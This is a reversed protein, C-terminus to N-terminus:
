AAFEGHLCAAAIRRAAAAHEKDRFEGLNITKYNVVIQARWVGRSVVHHVGRCGSKNDYRLSSNWKNQESSALRLNVLADNSRDRDMHDVERTPWVGYSLLWALRASRYFKGDIAVYRYGKNTICGAVDGARAQGRSMKWRLVGTDPNYDLLERVREVSANEKRIAAM